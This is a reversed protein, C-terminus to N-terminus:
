LVPILWRNSIRTLSSLTEFGDIFLKSEVLEYDSLNQEFQTVKLGTIGERPTTMTVFSVLTFELCSLTDRVNALTWSAVM